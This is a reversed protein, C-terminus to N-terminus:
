GSLIVGTGAKPTVPAPGVYSVVFCRVTMGNQTENDMSQQDLKLAKGRDRLVINSNM